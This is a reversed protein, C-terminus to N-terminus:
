LELMGRRSLDSLFARLDREARDQGVGFLGAVSKAIARAPTRGDCRKWIELATRGIEFYSGDRLNLLIGTGGVEKCVVEKAKRPFPRDTM